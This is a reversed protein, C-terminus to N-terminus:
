VRSGGKVMVMLAALLAASQRNCVVVDHRDPDGGLHDLGLERLREGYLAPSLEDNFTDGARPNMGRELGSLNFVSGPGGKELRRRIHGQAVQLKRFEREGSSLIAGRAYALGPSLPNGFRDSPPRSAALDSSITM